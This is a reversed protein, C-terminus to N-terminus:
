IDLENFYHKLSHNKQSNSLFLKRAKEELINLYLENVQLIREALKRSISIAVEPSHHLFSDVKETPIEILVTKTLTKVSANAITNRLISVDGLYYGPTNEVAIVKGNKIIEVEGSVLIYLAKPKRGQAIVEVHPRYDKYFHNLKGLDLNFEEPTKPIEKKDFTQLPDVITKTLQANQEVLREALSTALTIAIEPSQRLFPIANDFSLEILTTDYLTEVTATHPTNLLVAIEGIYEGEKDISSILVDNRYTYLAGEVLIFLSKPSSGQQILRTNARYKRFLNSFQNWNIRKIM